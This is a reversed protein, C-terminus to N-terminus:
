RNERQAEALKLELDAIVERLQMNEAELVEVRPPSLTALTEPFSLAHHTHAVVLGFLVAAGAVMILNYVRDPLTITRGM